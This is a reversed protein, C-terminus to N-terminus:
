EYRLAEVPHLRAARLAPLVSALVAILVSGAVVSAVTLPEVITPIKSFYYVTPDFVEQGTIWEVGKAIHNIFTVFLLGGIMGVGSGVLGLSFGYSLFISMVGRSPAGLAKLIGIDKTKEVVIMFFTALIGFGAVAIIMFLLINLLTTEMQVAALLPGQMDRWTQIRFPFEEAPFRAQLKDRIANLDAGPKLKLQITTVADGMGRSIQMAKLPVFAFGSDYESMKSEYFDVVTFNESLIKPLPTGVSAFAVQVDDGPRCLYVDRVKGRADRQRVSAMAIGLIIGTYQDKEPNFVDDPSHPKLQSLPDVPVTAVTTGEGEPLPSPHPNESPMPEVPAGGERDEGETGGVGSERDGFGANNLMRRQLEQEREYGAKLRRYIWGSPPIAHDDDGYGSERLWFKIKQRNEPHLLYQRFDSVEAYTAEDVGILNVQRPLMQGRYNINIMAPVHVAATVGALEDGVVKRIEAILAEVNGMGDQSHGEFIIDSLIGHLRIHMEHSFGAMVSNVVILTGVGLTVSIISALAIYRTRLYRWSLLLKYM